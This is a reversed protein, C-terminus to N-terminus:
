RSCPWRAGPWPVRRWLWGRGTTRWGWGSCWRRGGRPTRARGARRHVRGRFRIRVDGRGRVGGPGPLGLGPRRDRGAPLDLREHLLASVPRREDGGQRAARRRGGAGRRGGVPRASRPGDAPGGVGTEALGDLVAGADGPAFAGAAGLALPTTVPSLLTSALVLGLSLACDGDAARSWGASSGAVPMAAVVALGVLLDRAEAPDHWLGVLPAAAVVALVPVLLSAGLGVALALPRRLVGRLHEGRVAFGAAFLLVGLLVAPASALIAHGCVNGAGALGALRCGAEPAVGALAYAGALLWLFHRHLFGSAAHGHRTGM